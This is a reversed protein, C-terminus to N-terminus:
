NMEKRSQNRLEIVQELLFDMPMGGLYCKKILEMVQSLIKDREENRFATYYEPTELLPNPRGILEMAKLFEVEVKKMQKREAPSLLDKPLRNIELPKAGQKELEKRIKKNWKWQKGKNM